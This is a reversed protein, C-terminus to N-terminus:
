ARKLAVCGAHERGISAAGLRQMGFFSTREVHLGARRCERALIDPDLTNLFRPGPMGGPRRAIVREFDAIYGPWPDGALRAAEYAPVIQSWSPMYPTDAVLYLRGGPKLWGAMASLARRVDDRSLFHIVRSALIVDFSADPFEIGPLVGVVTRLRERQAPPTREVLVDLHQREMDSACVRAGRALAALTAVGYACGIDLAEGAGAAAKSAFAEAYEDLAELMFGTGNLTPIAGPMASTPLGPMTPTEPDRSRHHVVPRAETAASSGFIM